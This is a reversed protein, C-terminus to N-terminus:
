ICKRQEAKNMLVSGSAMKQVLFTFYRIQHGEKKKRNM